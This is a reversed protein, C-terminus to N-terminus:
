LSMFKSLWNDQELNPWTCTSLSMVVKKHAGNSHALAREISEIPRHEHPQPEFGVHSVVGGALGHMLRIHYDPPHEGKVTVIPFQPVPSNEERQSGTKEATNEVPHYM